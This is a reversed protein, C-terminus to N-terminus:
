AGEEVAPPGALVVKNWDYEPDIAELLLQIDLGDDKKLRYLEQYWLYISSQPQKPMHVWLDAPVDIKWVKRKGSFHEFDSYPTVCGPYPTDKDAANAGTWKKCFWPFFRYHVKSFNKLPSMGRSTVPIVQEEITSGDPGRGFHIIKRSLIQTVNQMVYKTMHYHLGQDSWSHLFEWRDGQKLNDEWHDGDLFPHGWGNVMDFKKEYGATEWNSRIIHQVQNYAEKSPEVVFFGTNCPEMIGALIVNPKLIANPGDTLEFMYDLNTLPLLDGDLFIIRRYETMGFTYFKHFFSSGRRTNFDPTEQPLYRISINMSRLLEEDYLPLTMDIVNTDMRFVAIMDATSGHARLLKASILMNALYPRWGLAKANIPSIGWMMFVYAYPSSTTREYTALMAHYDVPVDKISETPTTTTKKASYKQQTSQPTKQEPRSEPQSHRSKLDEKLANMEKDHQEQMSLVSQQLKALKAEWDELSRKSQDEIKAM